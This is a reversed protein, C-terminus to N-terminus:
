RCNSVHVLKLLYSKRKPPRNQIWTLNFRMMLYQFALKSLLSVSMSSTDKAVDKVKSWVKNDRVNDLFEHGDWTIDGISWYFLEGNSFQPKFDLYNADRLKLLTYMVTDFGYKEFIINDSFNSDNLPQGIQKTKEIELLTERVCDHNLEM